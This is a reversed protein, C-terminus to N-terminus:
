PAILNNKRLDAVVVKIVGDIVQRSSAANWTDSQGSWIRQETKVDYLNTELRVDARTSSYAPDHVYSHLYGYYSYYGHAPADRVTMDKYRLDVLHTILVGDNQYADVTKLLTDKELKLDPPMDIAAASSVAAVGAAAFEAVFKDEFSRRLAEKDAVVIVLIRSLPKGTFTEDIQRRTLDTGSCSLVFCMSAVM